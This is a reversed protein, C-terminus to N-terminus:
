SRSIAGASVGGVSFWYVVAINADILGEVAMYTLAVGGAIVTIFKKGNAKLFGEKEALNEGGEDSEFNM